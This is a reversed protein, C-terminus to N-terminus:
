AASTTCRSGPGSCHWGSSSASAAAAGGAWPQVWATCPCVIRAQVCAMRVCGEVCCCGAAVFCWQWHAQSCQCQAARIWRLDGASGQRRGRGAVRMPALSHWHQGTTPSGAHPGDPAEPLAVSLVSQTRRPTQLWLCASSLLSQVLILVRTHVPLRRDPCSVLRATGGERAGVIRCSALQLALRLAVPMLSVRSPQVVLSMYTAAAAATSEM